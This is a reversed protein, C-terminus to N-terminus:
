QPPPPPASGGRHISELLWGLAVGCALSGLLLVWRNGVGMKLMVTHSIGIGAIMGGWWFLDSLTYGPGKM